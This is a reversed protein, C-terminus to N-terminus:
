QSKIWQEVAPRLEEKVTDSPEYQPYKQRMQDILPKILPYNEPDAVMAARALSSIFGGGFRDAKALWELLYPHDTQAILTRRGIIM